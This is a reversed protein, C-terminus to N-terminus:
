RWGRSVAWEAGACGLVLAAYTLMKGDRGFLVLGAALATAGVLFNAILSLSWSRNATMGPLLLRSLLSVLLAVALAPALFGAVHLLLDLPGM